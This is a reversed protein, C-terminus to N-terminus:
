ASRRGDSPAAGPLFDFVFEVQRPIVHGSGSSFPHALVFGLKRVCCGHWGTQTTPPATPPNTTCVPEPNVRDVREQLMRPLEGWHRCLFAFYPDEASNTPSFAPCDILHAPTPPAARPPDLRSCREKPLSPPAVPPQGECAHAGAAGRFGCRLLSRRANGPKAGARTPHPKSRRVGTQELPCGQRSAICKAALHNSPRGVPRPPSALRALGTDPQRKRSGRTSPRHAV